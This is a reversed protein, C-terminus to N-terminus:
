LAQDVRRALRPRRGHHNEIHACGGARQLEPALEWSAPPTEPKRNPCRMCLAGRALSGSTPRPSRALHLSIALM